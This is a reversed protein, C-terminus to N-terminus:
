ATRRAVRVRAARLVKGAITYGSQIEGTVTGDDVGEATEEVTVAEHVTPDFPRGVTEIASVGLDQLVSFFQDRVMEVGRFFSDPDSRNASLARDLNDLVPILAAAASEGAMARLKEQEREIRQRFNFFDARARAVADGLERNEEGLREALAKAAELESLLEENEARSSEKAGEEFPENQDNDRCHDKASVGAEGYKKEFPAGPDRKERPRSM